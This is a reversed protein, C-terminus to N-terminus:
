DQLDEVFTIREILSGSHELQQSERFGEVFQLYLKVSRPDGKLAQFSLASVISGTLAKFEAPDFKLNKLHDDITSVNFGTEEALERLTPKRKKRLLITKFAETIVVHNYEYDARQSKPSKASKISSKKM